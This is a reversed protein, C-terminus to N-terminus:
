SAASIHRKDHQLVRARRGARQKILDVAVALELRDALHDFRLSILPPWNLWTDGAAERLPLLEPARCGPTQTMPNWYWDETVGLIDRAGHEDAYGGACWANSHLIRAIAIAPLADIYRGLM